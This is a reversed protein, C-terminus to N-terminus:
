GAYLASCTHPPLQAPVYRMCLVPLVLGPIITPGLSGVASLDVAAPHSTGAGCSPQRPTACVRSASCRRPPPVPWRFWSADLLKTTDAAPRGSGVMGGIHTYLVRRVRRRLRGQPESAGLPWACMTNYHLIHVVVGVGSAPVATPLSRSAHMAWGFPSAVRAARSGCFLPRTASPSTCCHTCM